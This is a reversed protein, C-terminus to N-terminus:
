PAIIFPVATREVERSADAPGLEFPRGIRNGSPDELIGLAVLQYTGASWPQAPEFHWVRAGEGLSSKGALSGAPSEVALARLALAEDMVRDFTVALPRRTGARPPAVRWRAPDLASEIAPGASFQQRFPAELPRGAADRWAPEVVLVYKSGAVLARGMADNPAIGTKVRGPDLLLTYRTRDENWLDADLPLFVDDIRRGAADLLEVHGAGGERSMPATFHVYLRLLNAPLRDSRPTVDTVRTPPGTVPAPAVDFEFTVPAEAGGPLTSADVVVRYRMGSEFPFAPAFRVRTGDVAFTGAMAPLDARGAIGSAVRVAVVERWANADTGRAGLAELAAANFGDITLFAPVRGDAIAVRPQNPPTDRSCGALLLLAVALAAAASRGRTM